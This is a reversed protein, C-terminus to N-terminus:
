EVTNCLVGIGEIEIEIVDGSVMPGIGAPTGTTVVDGPYLTMCTTVFEMIAGIDHMFYSTNSSQRVEGNLRTEIALANPNIDQTVVVPGIPAFTDFGKGRTWQGDSKQIDRATVDNLISYGNIYEFADQAKVNKATKKIIFCLEGEYDVIESIKPYIIKEEHAIICGTPKIFIIPTEPIEDGMEKVHDSYNQGVAVIKTPECPALIKYDDIVRDTVTCDGYIDGEIACYKGDVLAAYLTKEASELRSYRM